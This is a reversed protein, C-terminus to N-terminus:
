ITEILAERDTEACAVLARDLIRKPSKEELTAVMIAAFRPEGELRRDGITVPTDTFLSELRHIIAPMDVSTVFPMIAAFTDTAVRAKRDLERLGTSFLAAFHRLVDGSVDDGKLLADLGPMRFVLVGFPESQRDLRLLSVEIADLAGKTSLLGTVSDITSLADLQLRLKGIEEDREKLVRHLDDIHALLESNPGDTPRELEM